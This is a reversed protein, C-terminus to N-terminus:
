LTEDVGAIAGGYAEVFDVTHDTEEAVRRKVEAAFFDSM